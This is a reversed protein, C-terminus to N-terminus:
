VLLITPLTLHTYSVPMTYSRFVAMIAMPCYQTKNSTKAHGILLFERWLLDLHNSDSARVARKFDLVLFAYDYLFHVLWALDINSNAANLWYDVDDIAPGGHGSLHVLYECAAKTVRNIFHMSNNLDSVTPDDRVQKNIGAEPNQNTLHLACARLFRIYLRWGAHLVHFVGHPAEGQVPM